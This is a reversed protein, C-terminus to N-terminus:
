ECVFMLIDKYLQQRYSIWVLVTEVFFSIYQLLSIRIDKVSATCSEAKRIEPDAARRDPRGTQEQRLMM